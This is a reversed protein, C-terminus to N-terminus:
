IIRHTKACKRRVEKAFHAFFAGRSGGGPVRGVGGRSVGPCGGPAVIIRVDIQVPQSSGVRTVESEQLVRLIKVQASLPLECIEDLFLTGGNASEFYGKREANASTFAGKVHGFLENEILESPIAGCNIALFPMHQRLSANHIARALLEKGTGSEGEILVSVSRPAVMRAKEILRKMGLSRHIIASFEPSQPSVGASLRELERDPKRLLDPIFEASIDFPVSATSVGHLMSSEILEAPFRTKALIVWVAAMVPTGPSIHFTLEVNDDYKNLTDTIVGVAAQHVEGFHTPSSLRRYHVIVRTPTRSGLWDLYVSVDGEPYDSILVVEGYSRADLARAIPGPGGQDADKPGRLDASGIWSILITKM